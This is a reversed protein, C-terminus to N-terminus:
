VHREAGVRDARESELWRALAPCDRLKGLCRARTPGISGISMDLEASIEAYSRPESGVLLALLRQCHLPLQAFAERVMAQREARLLDADLAEDPGTPRETLDATPVAQRRTRTLVKLCENRTTTTLWGPLAAPTRLDQLNEVTRLWVSQSVDASDAESLRYNRCVAWVLTAYRDVIDNWADQSGDLARAILVEVPEGAGRM